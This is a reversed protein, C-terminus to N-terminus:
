NLKLEPNWLNNIQSILKPKLSEDKNAQNKKKKVWTKETKDKLM